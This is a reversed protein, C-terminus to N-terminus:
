TRQRKPTPAIQQTRLAKSCQMSIRNRLLPQHFADSRARKKHRSPFARPAVREVLGSAFLRILMSCQLDGGKRGACQQLGALRFRCPVAASWIAEGVSRAGGCGPVFHGGRKGPSIASLVPSITGSPRHFNAPPSAFATLPFWRIPRAFAGRGPPLAPYAADWGIGGGGGPRSNRTRLNRHNRQAACSAAASWWRSIETVGGADLFHLGLTQAM